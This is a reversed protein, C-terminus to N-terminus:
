AAAGEGSPTASRTPLAWPSTTRAPGMGKVMALAHAVFALHGLTMLAGGVTRAHLWPISVRTSELFGRQADLMALGQLIGGISLGVVYVAIGVLSAWFHAGVLAPYPWERGILRPLLFYTAGFLEFSVFGYMGFHAHAVTFHTFHTVRNITRLSEFSGELSTLTYMMAGLVVFRLTPSRKLSAFRGIMTWHHNIAVSVVPVFMMVSHVISVTVLWTPVPGGILHHMGVQSYFLALSWFGVLSLAYSHIPRGLIKPIFYYACALGIPTLWLGLVNHAFWWNVTAHEVGAHLYPVNAVVFLIPFWLFAAGLYWGSVYIHREKSGLLTAIVPVGAMGGGVVFLTDIAWPFELWEVGDTWGAALAAVGLLMGANWVRAGIVAVRPVALPRRALRPTLWLAAAIGGMSGWGYAVVNLHLPRIRGFTLPAWSSLWDPFTLKLSAVLGLASGVLLWVMAGGLFALVPERSSVDAVTRAEIDAASRPDPAAREPTAPDEASGEEGADFIVRAGDVSWDLRRRLIAVVLAALASLGGVFTLLVLGFVAGNM